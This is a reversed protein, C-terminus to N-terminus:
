PALPESPPVLPGPAPKPDRGPETVLYVGLGLTRGLSMVRIIKEYSVSADAQLVLLPSNRRGSMKEEETAFRAMTLRRDYVEQRLRQELNDWTVQSDNFFLLENPLGDASNEGEDEPVTEGAAVNDKGSRESRPRTITIVIKPVGRMETTPASPLQVQIGPHFVLSSGILAFTLLLFFVDIIPVPDIKGCYIKLNTRTM